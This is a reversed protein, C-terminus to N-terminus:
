RQFVRRLGAFPDGNDGEDEWKKIFIIYKMSVNLLCVFSLNKLLIQHMFIIPEEESKGVALVATSAEAM